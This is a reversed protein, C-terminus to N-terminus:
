DLRTAAVAWFPMHVRHNELLPAIVRLQDQLPKMRDAIDHMGSVRSM